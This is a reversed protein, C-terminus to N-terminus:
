QHGPSDFEELMAFDEEAATIFVALPVAAYVVDMDDKVPEVTEHLSGVDCVAVLGVEEADLRTLRLTYKRFRMSSGDGAEEDTGDVAM